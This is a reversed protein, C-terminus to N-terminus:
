NCNVEGTLSYSTGGGNVVDPISKVTTNFSFSNSSWSGSGSVAIYSNGSLDSIQLAPCNSCGNTYYDPIFSVSGSTGVNTGVLVWSNATISIIGDGCFADGTQSGSLQFNFTGQGLGTNGGGGTDCDSPDVLGECSPEDCNGCLMAVDRINAASIAGSSTQAYEYCIIDHCISSLNDCIGANILFDFSGTGSTAGNSNIPVFYIPGNLGFRMGVANVNGNPANFSISNSMTQGDQIPTVGSSTSISITNDTQVNDPNVTFVGPSLITLNENMLRAVEVSDSIGNSDGDDKNCSIFLSFSLILLFLKINKM